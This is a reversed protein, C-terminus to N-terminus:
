AQEFHRGCSTCPPGRADHSDEEPYRGPWLERPTLGLHTAIAKEIRRSRRQGQSVITVTTPRVNLERAIQALSTGHRRLEEKIHQHRLIEDNRTAPHM